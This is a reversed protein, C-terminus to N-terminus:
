TGRSRQFRGRRAAHIAAWFVSGGRLSVVGFRAGLRDRWDAGGPASM